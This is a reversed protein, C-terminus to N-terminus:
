WNKVCAILLASLVILGIIMGASVGGTIAVVGAGGAVTAVSAASWTKVRRRAARQRRRAVLAPERRSRLAETATASVAAALDLGQEVAAGSTLQAVVARRM